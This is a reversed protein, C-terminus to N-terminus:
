LSGKDEKEENSVMAEWVRDDIDDEEGLEAGRRFDVFAKVFDFPDKRVEMKLCIGPMEVVNEVM